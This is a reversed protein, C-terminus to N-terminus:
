IIYFAIDGAGITVTRATGEETFITFTVEKDVTNWCAVGKSGDVAQYCMYRIMSSDVFIGEKEVFRGDILYDAYEKRLAIAKKM